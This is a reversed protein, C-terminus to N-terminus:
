QLNKRPLPSENPHPFHPACALMRLDRYSKPPLQTSLVVVVASSLPGRELYSLDPLCSKGLGPGCAECAMTSNPSSYLRQTLSWPKGGMNLQISVILQILQKAATCGQLGPLHPMLVCIQVEMRSSSIFYQNIGRM